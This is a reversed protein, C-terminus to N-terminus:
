QEVLAHYYVNNTGNDVCAFPEGAASKFVNAATAGYTANGTNTNLTFDVASAGGGEEDSPGATLGLGKNIHQCVGLAVGNLYSIVERGTVNTNLGVDKIYYGNTAHLIDRFEWATALGINPPPAQFVVAGGDPAFVENAGAPSSTDFAIVNLASGSVVMRTVGTRVAAPFQTIQSASLIAQEKDVTGSGRGSQTIAYSLAAFLAVAILILFLANGREREQSHTIM